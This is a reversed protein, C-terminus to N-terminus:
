GSQSPARRRFRDTLSYLVPIVVLTLLTSTFLGGIVVVALEAALLVGQGLGLALPVLAMMTCIATMLIPRLRTRGGEVLADYTSMGRKRLQEVFAVLVIANTLVIGVLMLIGMLASVGIPYGAILLALLAGISALPLSVMIILPNIFSRFSVVVIAFAIVVALIIAIGMGRFAQNMEEAVGGVEATVGPFSAPLADMKEQAARNIAGVDKKKVEATVTVSRHQDIRRINTPEDMIEANGVDRLEIQHPLGGSLRLEGLEEATGANQMIGNVFVERGGLTVGTGVGAMMDQLEMQFKNVDLGQSQQFGLSAQDVLFRPKAVTQTIDEKIDALGDISRLDEALNDAAQVVKGYDEGLVDASFSGTDFGGMMSGTSNVDITSDGALPEVLLRLKDIEKELDASADLRIEISAANSGGGGELATLGGSLSSSSGVTTYYLQVKLSEANERIIDEVEAAKESTTKLDTGLPMEINVTLMKEGMSPMFSTGITPVLGLSGFFLVAAIVLTLARHSLAWKLVPVYVRQYWPERATPKAKKSVLVSSLPPVVMLAVLLSAALAFTITLAFPIFMEGVIGGVFALPLFIAITALTASTIPAAVERAGNIAAERFGEGQRLHRYTVELIVISDDVIRGVAIAMASLTLINITIGWAWMVMFGILISLPISIAVVLSGRITMLFLLIVLVALVGGVIAERTLDNISSEIYNSQDFVTQFELNHGDQVLSREIEGAKDVVANAVSVTNAEPKKMVTIGVSNRGNTRTVATGPAPGIDIKAVDKLLTNANIPTDGIDQLSSYQGKNTLAYVIQSMAIQRLNMEGADPDILVKEEGGELSASFVGDVGGLQPLVETTVMAKLEGPAMDGSLSLTVMPLMSMNIPYLKPNEDGTEPMVHPVGPPLTLTRLKESITDNVQSMKTGYEFEAFVFSMNDASTSTIRNLRPMGSIIQEVAMTVQEMVEEPSAGPYVTMVTTMPLEIDPIMEEELQLAAYISVGVIMAVLAFTVWRKAISIRTLWHM